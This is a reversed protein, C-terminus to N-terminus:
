GGGPFVPFLALKDGPMLTLETINNHTVVKENVTLLVDERLLNGCEIFIEDEFGTGYVESLDRLLRYLTTGTNLTAIEDSKNAAVRISGFYSVNVELTDEAM